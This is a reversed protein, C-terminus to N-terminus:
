LQNIPIFSIKVISKPLRSEGSCLDPCQEFEMHNLAFFLFAKLADIAVIIM